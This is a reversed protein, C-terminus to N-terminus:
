SDSGQSPQRRWPMEQLDTTQESAFFDRFIALFDERLSSLSDCPMNM